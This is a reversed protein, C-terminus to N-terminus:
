INPKDRQRFIKRGRFFVITNIITNITIAITLWAEWWEM